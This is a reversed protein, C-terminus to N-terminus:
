RFDIVSRNIDNFLPSISEVFLPGNTYQAFRSPVPTGSASQALILAAYFNTPPTTYTVQYRETVSDDGSRSATASAIGKFVSTAM